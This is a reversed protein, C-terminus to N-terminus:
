VEPKTNPEGPTEMILNNRNNNDQRNRITDEQDNKDFSPNAPDEKFFVNKGPTNYSTLQNTANTTM